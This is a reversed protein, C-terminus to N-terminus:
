HTVMHNVDTIHKGRRLLAQALRNLPRAEVRKPASAVSAEPHRAAWEAAKIAAERASQLANAGIFDGGGISAIFRHEAASESVLWAEETRYNKQQKVKM